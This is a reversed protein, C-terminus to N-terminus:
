RIWDSCDRLSGSLCCNSIHNAAIWPDGFACCSRLNFSTGPDPNHNLGGEESDRAIASPAVITSLVLLPMFIKM